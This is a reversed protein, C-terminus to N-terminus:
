ERRPERALRSLDNNVSVLSYYAQTFVPFQKQYVEQTSEDPKTTERTKIYRETAKEFSEFVGLAVGATIAAGM